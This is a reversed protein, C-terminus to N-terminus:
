PWSSTRILRAVAAILKVVIWLSLAGLLLAVL